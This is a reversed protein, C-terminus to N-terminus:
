TRTRGLAGRIRSKGGIEVGRRKDPEADGLVTVTEPDNIVVGADPVGPEVLARLVHAADGAAGAGLNDSPEVLLVPGERHGELRIVAEELIMLDPTGEEPLSSALV